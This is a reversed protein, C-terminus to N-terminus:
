QTFHQHTKKETMLHLSSRRTHLATNMSIGHAVITHVNIQKRKIDHTSPHQMTILFSCTISINEAITHLHTKFITEAVTHMPALTHFIHTYAVTFTTQAAPNIV